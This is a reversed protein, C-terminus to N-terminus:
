RRVWTHVGSLHRGPRRSVSDPGKAVVGSIRLTRFLAGVAGSSPPVGVAATVEDPHIVDGRPRATVYQTAVVQWPATHTAAQAMGQDRAEEETPVM